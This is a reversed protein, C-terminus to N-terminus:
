NEKTIKKMKRIKEILGLLDAYSLIFDKVFNLFGLLSKVQKGTIPPRFNQIIEMKKRDMIRLEGNIVNGM